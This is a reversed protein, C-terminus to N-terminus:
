VRRWVKLSSYSICVSACNNANMVYLIYKENCWFCRLSFFCWGLSTKFCDVSPYANGDCLCVSVAKLCVRVSETETM